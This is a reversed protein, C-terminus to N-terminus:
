EQYSKIEISKRTLNNAFTPFIDINLFIKTGMSEIIIRNAGIDTLKQKAVGGEVPILM